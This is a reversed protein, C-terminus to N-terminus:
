NSKACKKAICTFINFTYSYIKIVVLRVTLQKNLTCMQSNMTSRQNTQNNANLTSLSLTPVYLSVTLWISCVFSRIFACHCVINRHVYTVQKKIEFSNNGFRFTIRKYKCNFIMEVKVIDRRITENM